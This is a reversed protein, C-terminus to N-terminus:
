SRKERMGLREELSRAVATNHAAVKDLKDKAKAAADSEPDVIVAKKWEFVAEEPSGLKHLTNGLYCHARAYGPDLAIAQRFLEEAEVYRRTNYREIGKEVRRIASKRQSTSAGERHGRLFGLSGFIRAFLSHSM